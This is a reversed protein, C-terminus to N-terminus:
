GRTAFGPDALVCCSTSPISGRIEASGRMSYSEPQRVSGRRPAQPSTGDAHRSEVGGRSEPKDVQGGPRVSRVALSISRNAMLSVGRFTTPSSRGRRSRGRASQAGTSLTVRIAGVPSPSARSTRVEFSPVAIKGGSKGRRSDFSWRMCTQIRGLRYPPIPTVQTNIGGLM